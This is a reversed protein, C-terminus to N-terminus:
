MVMLLLSGDVNLLEFTTKVSFNLDFRLTLELTMIWLGQLLTLPIASPCYHCILLASAQVRSKSILLGPDTSSNFETSIFSNQLWFM